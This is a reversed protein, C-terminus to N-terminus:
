RTLPEVRIATVKYEPADTLGDRAASTIENLFQEPHHFTAFLEGERIDPNIRATFEAEGQASVARVRAGDNVGLREADALSIDLRDQPHLLRNPTHQTMTGANFQYLTRGSNLLFPYEESTASGPPRFQISRLSARQGMPFTEAHLYETGPHSEDPCPWQLGHEAIRSYTIGRVAPWCLRVEDWIQESSTFNFGSNAGMARALECIIEWDPKSNGRSAMVPRIMQIRREANMFTGDKEYSSAAPLFVTGFERATETLLMDQVIVCELKGLSKRTEGANPNTLLIDYGTVWLAKFEGEVAADMMQMLNLGENLPLSTQWFEEFRQRHGALPASGTLTDPECGMVASGQVNNQGRLPNVGAGPRGLNGTLLALNILCIVGQTGQVHETMGLGHICMAPRSTAYIRAAQRIQDAPVGCRAAVSEPSYARIFESFEVTGSVRERLFETDALGEELIVAALANFLLVNTGPHLQLHVEAYHALEIRRPDIVILRAGHLAAEKIRAGVVPHSETTNSGAVLITAAREIDDFSNTAAGTGLVSKMAVATPAHCVRACCDVNNTGLVVRAFKQALYNEENTARSSGLVGVADPGHSAIIRQFEGAVHALAEDWSVTRWEGGRERLMPEIIRDEAHVYDFAYRGKVCLHGKNVPSTMKPRINVIRGDRTGVNMECGVGCYPCTTRTWQDPPGLALHSKDELAGTPCTDVCAGCSVCSSELLTTGSDPLIRTRDGRNWSKWVFQGQVEDCIRVCRFCNICQSMDVAIYPHSNDRLPAPATLDPPSLTVRAGYPHVGYETLLRHFEKEPSSYIQDIPYDQALLKLLTRRDRELAATHSQVVMGDTVPTSCAAVPHPVGEVEVMCLRCGGFATLREDWCLSPIELGLQRAAQLINLGEQV